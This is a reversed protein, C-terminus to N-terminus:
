PHAIVLLTPARNLVCHLARQLNEPDLAAFSEDLVILDAKQLLARAIYLRSREGHSLQWGSEGVMQQFGAPMREILDGLGLERCIKEAEELDEPQPPWQRGMLLNFSFTETLVHNEHFQPASVVRRRWEDTGLTQRDLGHLLLLGSEPSRLGVIIAALTSKGGGSVGELLIRDGKNIRLNCGRLIPQGYDRYRFFLDRAIVIPQAELNATSQETEPLMISTSGHAKKDRTAAHFLPAIEGWTNMLGVVSQIGGVLSNLAKSALMIGGLSIMLQQPSSPTFIFTYAIGSLGLILWGRNILASLQLGLGDLKESLRLYRAIAQDEDDHWHQYDEQALRTRHGVMREVLDNTMERYHKLWDRSYEYYRWCMFITLTVWLLLLLAHLGGGTGVTLVIAATILEILAIVAAFGGALVLSEVAESEMVRGLFQGIGQHCIEEPKLQLTGYLLRQKFLVSMGVTLLSQTWTMLIQFPITTLLVLAWALLWARDFHGQLAGQVMLWWGISSFGQLILHLSLLRVVYRPLKAYRIQQWFKTAPSLRLLWCGKIQHNSLQERLIAASARARRQEPVGAEILLQNIPTALPAEIEATLADRIQKPLIRRISLDPAILAIRRWGGKLLILFRLENDGPLRLLAPGASHVMQEVETYSSEVAETELELRAVARDLWEGITQDNAQKLTPPPIPVDLPNSSFGAERALVEIAEGLRSVPWALSDIDLNSNAIM